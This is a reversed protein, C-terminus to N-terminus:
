KKKRESLTDVKEELSNLFKKLFTKEEDSSDNLINNVLVDFDQHIKEHHLYAIEGKPTLRIILRSLNNPDIEKITMGKKQLKTIIQSVAGKTVGLKEALGIVHIGESEKIAKIMHIEAEFLQKDTGYYSTQKDLESLKTVLRLLTYSIKLKNDFNLNM